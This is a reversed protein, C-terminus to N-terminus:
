SLKGMRESNFGNPRMTRHFHSILNLSSIGLANFGHPRITRNLEESRKLTPNGFLSMASSVSQTIFQTSDGMNHWGMRHARYEM